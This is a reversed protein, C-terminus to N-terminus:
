PYINSNRYGLRRSIELAASVLRNAVAEKDYNNIEYYLFSLSIAAVAENNDKFIPAALCFVNDHDERNDIAYGRKRTFELDKLLEHFTTITRQTKAELKSEDGIIEKVKDETYCALLAKGLATHYMGRRSGLPLTTRTATFPEAKNLYVIQGEDEVALFTTTKFENMLNELYPRTLSVLDIQSLYASGVEFSSIGLSYTRLRDDEIKVFGEEKLTSLIDFASSKPIQLKACIETLTMGKKKALLKLIKAARYVTNVKAM